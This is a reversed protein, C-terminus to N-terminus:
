TRGSAPSRRGGSRRRASRRADEARDHLNSPVTVSASPRRTQEPATVTRFPTAAHRGGGDAAVDDERAAAVPEEGAALLDERPGAVEDRRDPGEFPEVRKGAEGAASRTTRSSPNPGSPPTRAAWCRRERGRQRAVEIMTTTGDPEVCRSSHRTEPM